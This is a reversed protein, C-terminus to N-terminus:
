VDVFGLGERYAGPRALLALELADAGAKDKLKQSAERYLGELMWRCSGRGELIRAAAKSAWRGAEELGGDRRERLAVVVPLGGEAAVARGAWGGSLSELSVPVVGNGDEVYLGVPALSRYVGCAGRGDILSLVAAPSADQTLAAQLLRELATEGPPRSGRYAEDLLWEYSKVDGKPCPSRWDLGRGEGDVAGRLAKLAAEVDGPEYPGADYGEAAVVVEAGQSACGELVKGRRCARGARQVLSAAPAAETVVMFANVDVGAEVLQTAVLVGPEGQSLREVASLAAEKDGPLMRGHLLTVRGEPLGHEELLSRYAEYARSVTNAVVLVPAGRGAEAAAELASSWGTLRTRWELGGVRELYEKDEVLRGGAGGAGSGPCRLRYVVPRGRGRRLRGLAAQLAHSPLSATTVMLPVRREALGRLAALFAELGVGSQSDGDLALHAEDLVVVSSDIAALAPYYHGLSRGRFVKRYETTPLRYLNSLFSDITAAVPKLMLFGAKDPGRYGMEQRGARGLGRKLLGHVQAVLARLPSVHILGSALGAEVSGRHVEPAAVTKGYGTPAVVIPTEGRGLLGELAEEMLPRLDL